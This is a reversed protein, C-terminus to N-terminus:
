ATRDRRPLGLVEPYDARLAALVANIFRLRTHRDKLEIVPDWRAHEGVGVRVNDSNVRLRSPCVIWWSGDSACVSLQRLILGSPLLVDLYGRLTSRPNARHVPRWDLCIARHVSAPMANDTM